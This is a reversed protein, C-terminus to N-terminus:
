RAAPMVRLLVTVTDGDRPLVGPRARFTTADRRYDRVTYRANGIKSGPCSYLCVICGSHWHPINARHGGLRM